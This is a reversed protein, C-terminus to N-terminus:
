RFTVIFSKIHNPSHYIQLSTCKKFINLLLCFIQSHCILRLQSLAMLMVFQLIIYWFVSIASAWNNFNWYSGSQQRYKDINTCLALLQESHSLGSMWDSVIYLFFLPFVFLVAAPQFNPIHLHQYLIAAARFAPFIASTRGACISNSDPFSSSFCHLWIISANCLCNVIQDGALM